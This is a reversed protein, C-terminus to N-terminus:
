SILRKHSMQDNKKNCIPYFGDAQRMEFGWVDGATHSGLSIWKTPDHLQLPKVQLTQIKWIPALHVIKSKTELKKLLFIQIWGFNISQIELLVFLELSLLSSTNNMVNLLFESYVILGSLTLGNFSILYSSQRGWPCHIWRRGGRGKWQACLCVGPAGAGHQM